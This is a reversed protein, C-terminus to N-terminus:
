GVEKLYYNRFDDRSMLGHAAIGYDTLPYASFILTKTDNWFFRSRMSQIVNELYVKRGFKGHEKDVYDMWSKIGMESPTKVDLSYVNNKKDHRWQIFDNNYEYPVEVSLEMMQQKRLNEDKPFNSGIIVIDKNKLENLGRVAGHYFNPDVKFHYEECLAWFNKDEALEKFPIIWTEKPSFGLENCINKTAIMLNRMEIAKITKSLKDFYKTKSVNEVIQFIQGKPIVFGDFIPHYSMQIEDPDTVAFRAIVERLDSTADTIVIKSSAMQAFGIESFVSKFDKINPFFLIQANSTKPELRLEVRSDTLLANKIPYYWSSRRHDKAEEDINEFWSRSGEASVTKFDFGRGAVIEKNIEGYNEAYFGSNTKFFEYMKEFRDILIQKQKVTLESLSEDKSLWTPIEPLFNVFSVMQYAPLSYDFKAKKVADEDLIFLDAKPFKFKDDTYFSSTQMENLNGILIDFVNSRAKRTTRYYPCTHNVKCKSECIQFPGKGQAIMREREKSNHCFTIDGEQRYRSEANIQSEGFVRLLRPKSEVNQLRDLFEGELEVAKRNSYTLFVSRRFSGDPKPTLCLDMLTTTKGYGVPENMFFIKAKSDEMFEGLRKLTLKKQQELTTSFYKNKM